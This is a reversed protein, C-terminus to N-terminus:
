VIYRHLTTTIGPIGGAPAETSYDSGRRWPALTGMRKEGGTQLLKRTPQPDGNNGDPTM